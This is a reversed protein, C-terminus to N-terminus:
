CCVGLVLLAISRPEPIAITLDDMVFQNAQYQGYSRFEVRDVDLFDFEIFEPAAGPLGYTKDYLEDTGAFGRVEFLIGDEFAGTIYASTLNFRSGSSLTALYGYANFVANSQSIIGVTYGPNGAHSLDYVYFNSWELGLYNDPVPDGGWDPAPLDDFGITFSGQGLLREGGLCIWVFFLFCKAVRVLTM